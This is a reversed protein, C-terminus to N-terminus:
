GGLSFRGPLLGIPRNTDPGCRKPRIPDTIRTLALTAKPITSCDARIVEQPPNRPTYTSRSVSMEGQVSGGRVNGGPCNGWPPFTRCERPVLELGGLNRNTRKLHLPRRYSTLNLRGSLDGGRTRLPAPRLSRTATRCWGTLPLENSCNATTASSWRVQKLRTTSRGAETVPPRATGSRAVKYITTIQPSKKM